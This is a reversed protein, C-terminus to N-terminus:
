WTYCWFCEIVCVEWYKIMMLSQMLVHLVFSSRKVLVMVSVSVSPFGIWTLKTPLDLVATSAVAGLRCLVPAPFPLFSLCVVAPIHIILELSKELSHLTSSNLSSAMLVYPNMPPPLVALRLHSQLVNKFNWFFLASLHFVSGVTVFERSIIKPLTPTATLLVCLVRWMSVFSRVFILRSRILLFNKGAAIFSSSVAFSLVSLNRLGSSVLLGVFNALM